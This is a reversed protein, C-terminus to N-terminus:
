FEHSKKKGGAYSYGHSERIMIDSILAGKHKPSVLLRGYKDLGTVKCKFVGKPLLEVLRKKASIANEKDNGRMEPTDIGNVRCRRRKIKRDDDVFIVTFTDGDYVDVVKMYTFKTCKECRDTNKINECSTNYSKLRIVNLINLFKYM